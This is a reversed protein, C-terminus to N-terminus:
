DKGHRLGNMFRLLKERAGADELNAMPLIHNARIDFPVRKPDSAFMILYKHLATAFGAEFYVNANHDPMGVVVFHSQRIKELLEVNIAKTTAIEDMRRLSYGAEAMWPTLVNQYWEDCEGNNYPMVVFGYQRRVLSKVRALLEKEAWVTLGSGDRPKPLFTFNPNFHSVEGRVDFQSMLLIAQTGLVTGLEEALLLGGMGAGKYRLSADVIVMDFLRERVYRSAEAPLLACEVEHGLHEQLVDRYVKLVEDQDDVILITLRNLRDM